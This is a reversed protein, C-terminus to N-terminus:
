ILFCGQFGTIFAEKQQLIVGFPSTPLHAIKNFEYEFVAAPKYEREKEHYTESHKHAVAPKM